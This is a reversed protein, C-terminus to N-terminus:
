LHHVKSGQGEQYGEGPDLGTQGCDERVPLGLVPDAEGAGLLPSIVVERSTRAM